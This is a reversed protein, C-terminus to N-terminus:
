FGGIGCKIVQFKIYTECHQIGIIFRWVRSEARLIPIPTKIKGYDIRVLIARQSNSYKYISDGVVVWSYEPASFLSWGVLKDGSELYYEKKVESSILGFSKFDSRLERSATAQGHHYATIIPFAPMLCLISAFLYALLVINSTSSVPYYKKLLFWISSFLLSVLAFVALWGASSVYNWYDLIYIYGYFLYSSFPLSAESINISYRGLYGAIDLYGIGSIIGNLIVGIFTAVATFKIGPNQPRVFSRKIGIRHYTGM